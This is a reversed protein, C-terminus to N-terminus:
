RYTNNELNSFSTQIHSSTRISCRVRTCVLTRVYIYHQSAIQIPWVVPPSVLSWLCDSIALIFTFNLPLHHNGSQVTFTSHPQGCMHKSYARCKKPAAFVVLFVYLFLFLFGFFFQSLFHGFQSDHPEARPPFYHSGLDTVRGRLRRAANGACRRLAILAGKLSPAPTCCVEVAVFCNVVCVRYCPFFFTCFPKRQCRRVSLRPRSEDNFPAGSANRRCHNAYACTCHRAYTPARACFYIGM